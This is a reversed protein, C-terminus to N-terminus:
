QGNLRPDPHFDTLRVETLMARAPALTASTSPLQGNRPRIRVRTPAYDPLANPPHLRALSARQLAAIQCQGGPHFHRNGAM